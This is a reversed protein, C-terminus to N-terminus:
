TVVTTTIKTINGRDDYQYSRIVTKAGKTVTEVSINGETDYVFETHKVVVNNFKVIEEHISDDIYYTYDVTHDFTDEWSDTDAVMFEIEAGVSTIVGENFLVTRDDIESYDSPDIKKGDIFVLLNGMGPSYRLTQLTFSTQSTDTVTQTETQFLVGVNHTTYPIIFEEWGDVGYIYFKKQSTVIAVQNFVPNPTNLLDAYTAAVTINGLNLHSPRYRISIVDGAKLYDAEVFIISTPSLETYVGKQQFIGNRYVDIMNIGMIYPTDWEITDQGDTQVVVDIGYLPSSQTRDSMWKLAM